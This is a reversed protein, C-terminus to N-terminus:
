SFTRIAPAKELRGKRLMVGELDDVVFCHSGVSWTVRAQPKLITPYPSYTM